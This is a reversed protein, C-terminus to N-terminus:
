PQGKARLKEVRRQCAYAVQRSYVNCGNHAYDKCTKAAADVAANWASQMQETPTMADWDVVCDQSTIWEEFTVPGGDQPTTM